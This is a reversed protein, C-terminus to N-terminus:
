ASTAPSLAASVGTTTTGLTVTIPTATTSPAGTGAWAVAKWCQSSYGKTSTGGIGSAGNFCVRYGPTAILGAFKYTGDGKTLTASIPASGTGFLEVLVNALATHTQSQTVKGSIAGASLVANVNLIDQGSTASLETAKAPLGTTNNKSLPKNAWPVFSYCQAAYMSETAPDPGFCVDYKTNPNVSLTYAGGSSTTTSVAKTGITAGGASTSVTFATVTVGPLLAYTDGARVVGSITASGNRPTLAFDITTPSGGQANFPTGTPRQAGDPWAVNHYCQNLYGGPAGNTIGSAIVCVTESQPGDLLAAEYGAPGSTADVEAPGFNNPDIFSVQAGVLTVGTSADTVTGHVEAWPTLQANIGTRHQGDSLAIPDGPVSIFGPGSQLAFNEWKHNNYCQGEFVSAGGTFPTGTDFCVQYGAADSAALGTFSYRGLGDTQQSAIIKPGVGFPAVTVDGILEVTVGPIGQNGVAAVATGSISATNSALAPTMAFAGIGLATTTVIAFTVLRRRVFSVKRCAVAGRRADIMRSCLAPQGPNGLFNIKPLCQDFM